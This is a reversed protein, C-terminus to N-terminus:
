KLGCKLSSFAWMRQFNYMFCAQAAIMWEARTECFIAINTKPKQGLMQLGNGFNSARVFVEEYSLWNYNGLIVQYFLFFVM